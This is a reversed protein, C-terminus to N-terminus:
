QTLLNEPLARISTTYRYFNLKFVRENIFKIIDRKGKEPKKVEEIAKKM